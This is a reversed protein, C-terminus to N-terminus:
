GIAAQGISAKGPGRLEGRLAAVMEVLRPGLHDTLRKRSFTRIPGACTIVHNQPGCGILPASVSNVEPSLNRIHVVFGQRRISEHAQEVARRVGIWDEDAQHARMQALIRTQEALPASVLYALGASSTGMPVAQGIDKNVTLGAHAPRVLDVFVISLRDRMGLIVTTDMERALAEMRPRAARQVGLNKQISASLGLFAAGPVYRRSGPSRQLYGLQELTYTLRTITAAPLGTREAIDRNGLEREDRFATLIQLGRGLATVFKDDQGRERAM